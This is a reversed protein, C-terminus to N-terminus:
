WGFFHDSFIISEAHKLNGAEYSKNKHQHHLAATAANGLQSPCILLLHPFQQIPIFNRKRYPFYFLGIKKAPRLCCRGDPKPFFKKQSILETTGTNMEESSALDKVLLLRSLEYHNLRPVCRMATVQVWWNEWTCTRGRTNVCPSKLANWTIM